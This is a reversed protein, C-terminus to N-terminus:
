YTFQKLINYPKNLSLLALEVEKLCENIGGGTLIINNYKKIFDMLDPISLVDDSYEMLERIDENGYQSIFSDWMTEDLDRSDFINNDNMFKILNIIQVEEIGEDMCYRFFAYGKDYFIANDVVNESVGIEYLWYKYDHESIMGLTDSGNYLFIILNNNNSKNLFKVWNNINFSIYDSYEPQIDVNIITKGSIKSNEFLFTRNIKKNVYIENLNKRLIKLIQQKM